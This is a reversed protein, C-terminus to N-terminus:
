NPLEAPPLGGLNRLRQSMARAVKLEALTLPFHQEWWEALLQCRAALNAVSDAGWGDAITDFEERRPLKHESM